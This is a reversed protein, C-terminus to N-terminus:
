NAHVPTVSNHHQLLSMEKGVVEFASLVEELHHHQHTAMYSTRMMSHNVPAAPPIFANVFINKEFLKNWMHLALHEDGVVIPVIGSINHHYKFGLDKFGNRMFDTNQRLLDVLEPQEELITLAAIAAACSAPTPSASFILAPSQHKLFDIVRANGGVFGGL